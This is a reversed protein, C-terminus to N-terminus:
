PYKGTASSFGPSDFDYKGIEDYWNDVAKVCTGKKEKPIGSGYEM